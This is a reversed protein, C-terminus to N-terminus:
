IIAKWENMWVLCIIRIWQRFHPCESFKQSATYVGSKGITCYHFLLHNSFHLFIAKTVNHHFIMENGENPSRGQLETTIEWQRDTDADDLKRNLLRFKRWERNSIPIAHTTMHNLRYRHASIFKNNTNINVTTLEKCRKLKILRRTRLMVLVFIEREREFVAWVIVFIHTVVSKASAACCLTTRHINRQKLSVKHKKTSVSHITVPTSRVSNYQLLPLLLQICKQSLVQSSHAFIQGKYVCMWVCVFPYFCFCFVRLGHREFAINM